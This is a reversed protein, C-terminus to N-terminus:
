RIADPSPFPKALLRSGSPDDSLGLALWASRQSRLGERNRAKKTPDQQRQGSHIRFSSLRDRLHVADGPAPLEVGEM